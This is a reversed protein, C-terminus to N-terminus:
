SSRHAQPPSIEVGHPGAGEYLEGIVWGRLQRCLSIIMHAHLAHAMNLMTHVHLTSTIIHFPPTHPPVLSVHQSDTVVGHKKKKPWTAVRSASM